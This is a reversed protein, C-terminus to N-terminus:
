LTFWQAKMTNSLFLVICCLILTLGVILATIFCSITKLYLARVILESGHVAAMSETYM